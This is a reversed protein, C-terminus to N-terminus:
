PSIIVPIEDVAETDFFNKNQCSFVDNTQDLLMKEAHVIDLSYFVIKVLIILKKIIM